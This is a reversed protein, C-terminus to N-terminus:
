WKELISDKGAALPSTELSFFYLSRPTLFPPLVLTWPIIALSSARSKLWGDLSNIKNRKTFFVSCSASFSSSIRSSKTGAKDGTNKTWSREASYITGRTGEVREGRSGCKLSTCTERRGSPRSGSVCTRSPLDRYFTCIRLSSTSTHLDRSCGSLNKEVHVGM